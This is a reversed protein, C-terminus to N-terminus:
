QAGGACNEAAMCEGQKESCEMRNLEEYTPRGDEAGIPTWRCCCNESELQDNEPEVVKKPPASCAIALLWLLPLVVLSKMDTSYCPYASHAGKVEDPLM